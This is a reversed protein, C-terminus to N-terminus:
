WDGSAGGGSFGGGGGGWSGGGSGFGDGGGGFSGGGWGGGPGYWFGGGRGGGRGFFLPLLFIMFFILLLILQVTDGNLKKHPSGTAPSFKPDTRQVIALVGDVIARDPQGERMRPVIVERIIRSAIIDPLDGERGKGVEIRVRHESKAILLIVGDDVKATGIKWADALKIGAEEIPTGDLTAVTVVQIQTGGSDKLEHLFDDLKARTGPSLLGANDVVPGTLPPVQFEAHSFWSASAFLICTLAQSISM